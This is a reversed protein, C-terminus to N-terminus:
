FRLRAGVRYIRGAAAVQTAVPQAQYAYRESLQNTLNQAEASISFWDTVKFSASADLNFTSRSFTFDNVLPATCYGGPANATAGITAPSTPVPAVIGPSCSGGAIPFTVSYGKRYAGVIRARFRDTEYYLTANFSQPSVGLFPAKATTQPVAVLTASGRQGPDLIYNLQSKIYSYNLIVGFDRLFGPLFTLDQQYSAEM